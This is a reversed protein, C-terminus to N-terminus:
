NMMNLCRIITFKSYDLPGILAVISNKSLKIYINYLAQKERYWLNLNEMEIHPQSRNQPQAVKQFAEIMLFM